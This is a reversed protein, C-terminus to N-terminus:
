GPGLQEAVDDLFARDGDVADAQSHRRDVALRELDGDNGMGSCLRDQKLLFQAIRDIQLAVNDSFVHFFQQAQVRFCLCFM